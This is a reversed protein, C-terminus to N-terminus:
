SCHTESLYQFGPFYGERWLAQEAHRIAVQQVAMGYADSEPVKPDWISELRREIERVAEESDLVFDDFAVMLTQRARNPADKLAGFRMECSEGNPLTFEFAAFSDHEAWPSWMGVATAAALGSGSFVFVVIAALSSLRFLKRRPRSRRVMVSTLRSVEPSLVRAPDGQRLLEKFDEDHM